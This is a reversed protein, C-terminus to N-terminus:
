PIAVCWLVVSDVVDIQTYEVFSSYIDRERSHFTFRARVNRFFACVPTFTYSAGLVTLRAAPSGRWVIQFSSSSYSLASPFPLFLLLSVTSPFFSVGRRPPLLCIAPISLFLSLNITNERIKEFQSM